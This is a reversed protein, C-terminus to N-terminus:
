RLRNAVALGCVCRRAINMMSDPVLGSSSSPRCSSSYQSSSINPSLVNVYTNLNKCIYIGYNHIRIIVLMEHPWLSIFANYECKITLSFPLQIGITVCYVQQHFEEELYFRVNPAPRKM